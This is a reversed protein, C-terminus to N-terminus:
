NTHQHAAKGQGMAHGMGHPKGIGHEGLRQEALAKQEPNLAAFLAQRAAEREGQQAAHLQTMAEHQAAHDVTAAAKPEQMRARMGDRVAQRAQAQQNVAVEYKQWAAEQAVTIKLEAKLAALRGAGGSPEHMGRMGTRAAGQHGMGMGQKGMGGLAGDQHAFAAGALGCAIVAAAIIKTSNKM